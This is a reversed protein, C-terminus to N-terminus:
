EGGGGEAKKEAPAAAPKRDWMKPIHADWNKPAEALRKQTLYDEYEKKDPWDKNAVFALHYNYKDEVKRREVRINLYHLKQELGTIMGQAHDRDHIANQLDMTNPMAAEVDGLAKVLKKKEEELSSEVSKQQNQLDSFIPDLLEPNPEEKRCGSLGFLILTMFFLLQLRTSM